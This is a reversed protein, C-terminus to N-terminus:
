AARPRPRAGGARQRGATTRSLPVPYPRGNAPRRSSRARETARRAPRHRHGRGRRSAATSCGRSHRGNPRGNLGGGRGKASNGRAGASSPSGGAARYLACLGRGPGPFPGGRPFSTPDGEAERRVSDGGRSTRGVRDRCGGGQAGEGGARSGLGHRDSQALTGWGRGRPAGKHCRNDRWKRRSASRGRGGATARDTGNLFAACGEFRERRSGAPAGGGGVAGGKWGPARLVAAGHAWLRPGGGGGGGGGGSRKETFSRPPPLPDSYGTSDAGRRGRSRDRLDGARGPKRFRKAGGGRAM